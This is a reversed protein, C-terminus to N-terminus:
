VPLPAFELHLQQRGEVSVFRPNLGWSTAAAGAAAGIVAGILVCVGVVWLGPVAVGAGYAALTLPLTAGYCAGFAGGAFANRFFDMVTPDTTAEIKLKIGLPELGSNLLKVFEAFSDVVQIIFAKPSSAGLRALVLDVAKEFSM